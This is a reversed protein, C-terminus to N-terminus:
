QFFLSTMQSPLQVQYKIQIQTIIWAIYLHLIRSLVAITLYDSKYNRLENLASLHLRIMMKSRSVSTKWYQHRYFVNFWFPSQHLRSFQHHFVIESDSIWFVHTRSSELVILSMRFTNQVLFYSNQIKKTTIGGFVVFYVLNNFVTHFVLFFNIVCMTTPIKKPHSLSIVRDIKWCKKLNVRYIFTM